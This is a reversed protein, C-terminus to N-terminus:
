YPYLNSCTYMNGWRRTHIGALEAQEQTAEEKFNFSNDLGSGVLGSISTGGRNTVTFSKDLSGGVVVSGFSYTEGDSILLKNATTAAIPIPTTENRLGNNFSFTLIDSDNGIETSSYELIVTCNGAGQSSGCTGGTGPYSGGKFQFKGAPISATM